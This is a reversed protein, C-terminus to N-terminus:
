PKGVFEAFRKLANVVTKNSKAGMLEKAGGADYRPVIASINRGLSDWSLGEEERVLEVANVYAYVTSPNGSDTEVAYGQDILYKEFAAPIPGSPMTKAAAKSVPVASGKSPAAASLRAKREERVREVEEKLAGLAVLAGTEFSQPISFRMQRGGEFCVNLFTFGGVMEKGVVKGEGFMNHWVMEMVTVEGDNM